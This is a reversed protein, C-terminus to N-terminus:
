HIQVWLSTLIIGNFSTRAFCKRIKYVLTSLTDPARFESPTFVVADSLKLDQFSTKYCVCSFYANKTKSQCHKPPFHYSLIAGMRRKDHSYTQHCYNMLLKILARPIQHLSTYFIYVLSTLVHPRVGGLVATDVNVATIIKFKVHKSCLLITKYLFSFNSVHHRLLTKNTLGSM